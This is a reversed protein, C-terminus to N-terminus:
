KRWARAAAGAAAATSYPGVSKEMLTTSPTGRKFYWGREPWEAPFRQVDIDNAFVILFQRGEHSIISGHVLLPQPAPKPKRFLSRQGTKM